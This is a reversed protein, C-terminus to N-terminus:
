IKRVQKKNNSKNGDFYKRFFLLQYEISNKWYDWGHVGPREIYDHAIKNQLLGAHFNRNGNIFIDGIGCDVLISLPYQPVQTVLNIMSHDLWSQQNEIVPGLVKEIEFKNMSENLDVGGSMSAVAGFYESHRWAIYLAGHGGMSLGTIARSSRGTDTRYHTEIFAPVESAIYTEFQSTKKIESDFYWSRFDGDPCVLIMKYKDAYEKIQPVKTIWNSYNGSYGHLMYVVPFKEKKNKKYKDPVIVVAKLSRDMRKSFIAVTDVKSALLHVPCQFSIALFLIFKLTFKM